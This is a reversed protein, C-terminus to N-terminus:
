HVFFGPPNCNMPDNLAVCSQPAHLLVEIISQLTLSPPEMKMQSVTVEQAKKENETKSSAEPLETLRKLPCVQSMKSVKM